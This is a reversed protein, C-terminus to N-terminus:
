ACGPATSSTAPDAPHNLCLQRTRKLQRISQRLAAACRCLEAATAQLEAASACVAAIRVPLDFPSVPVPPCANHMRAAPDLLFPM